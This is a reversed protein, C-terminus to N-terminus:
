PLNIRNKIKLTIDVIHGFRSVRLIEPHSYLVLFSLPMLASEMMETISFHLKFIM